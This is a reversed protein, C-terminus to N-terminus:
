DHEVVERDTRPWLLAAGVVGAFAIIAHTAAALGLAVAPALGSRDHALRALAWLVFLSALTYVEVRTSPEWAIMSLGAGFLALARAAAHLRTRAPGALADVLSWAPLVCLAGALASLLTLGFHASVGPLHAFLWGVLTHIPQGVPHGVGLQAAVLALEPSDYFTMGPAMTLAYVVFVSAATLAAELPRSAPLGWLRM